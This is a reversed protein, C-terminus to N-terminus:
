PKRIFRGTENDRFVSRPIGRIHHEEQRWTLESKSEEERLGGVEIPLEQQKLGNGVGIAQMNSDNTRWDSSMVLYSGTKFPTTYTETNKLVSENVLMAGLIISAFGGYACMYRAYSGFLYQINTREVWNFLALNTALLGVALALLGLTFRV